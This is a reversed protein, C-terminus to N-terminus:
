DALVPMAFYEDVSVEKLLDHSRIDFIQVRDQFHTYLYGKSAMTTENNYAIGDKKVPIKITIDEEKVIKGDQIRWEDLLHYPETSPVYQTTYFVQDGEDMSLLNTEASKTETLELIELDKHNLSVLINNDLGSGFDNHILIRDQFTTIVGTEDGLDITKKSTPSFSHINTSTSYTLTEKSVHFDDVKDQLQIVETKTKGDVQYIYTLTERDHSLIAINKGDTKFDVAGEVKIETIVGKDSFKGNQVDYAHVQKGDYTYLTDYGNNATYIYKGSPLTLSDKFEGTETNIINLMGEESGSVIYEALKNELEQVEGVEGKDDMFLFYSGLGAGALLVVSTGILIKTKNKELAYKLNSSLTVCRREM